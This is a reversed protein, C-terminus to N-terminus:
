SFFDGFHHKAVISDEIYFHHANFTLEGIM